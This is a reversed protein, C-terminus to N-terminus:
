SKLSDFEADSTKRYRHNYVESRDSDIMEITNGQMKRFQSTFAKVKYIEFKLTIRQSVSTPM